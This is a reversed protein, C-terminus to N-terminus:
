YGTGAGPMREQKQSWNGALSSEPLYFRLNLYKSEQWGCLSGSPIEPTQSLDVGARALIQSRLFLDNMKERETRGEREGQLERDRHREFLSYIKFIWVRTVIGTLVHFM